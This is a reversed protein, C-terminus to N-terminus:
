GKCALAIEEIQPQTLGFLQMAKLAVKSGRVYTMNNLWWDKLDPDNSLVGYMVDLQSKIFDNTLLKDQSLHMPIPQEVYSLEYGVVDKSKNLKEVYTPVYRVFPSREPMPESESVPLYGDSELLNLKLQKIDEPLADSIECIRDITRNGKEGIKTRKLYKM